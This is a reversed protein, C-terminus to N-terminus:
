GEVPCAANPQIRTENKQTTIVLATGVKFECELGVQTSTYIENDESYTISVADVTATDSVTSGALGGLLGGALGGVAATESNKGSGIAAGAIAGFLAGGKTAKEKSESNDLTVKAPLVAIIEITKASQKTNLQAATYTSAKHSEGTTQCGTIFLSTTVLAIITKKM